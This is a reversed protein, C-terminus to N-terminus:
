TLRSDDLPTTTRRARTPAPSSSTLANRGHTVPATSSATSPAVRILAVPASTAGPRVATASAIAAAAMATTAAPRM